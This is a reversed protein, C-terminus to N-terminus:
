TPNSPKEWYRLSEHELSGLKRALIFLLDSLRNLYPLGKFKQDSYTPNSMVLFTVFNREARRCISRSLHALASLVSEGPVIFEKLPSLENNLEEALKTIKSIRIVKFLEINPCSIEGGLNFLDNQIELLTLHIRRSEHTDVKNKKLNARLVGISCSLEDLEGLIQIEPCNKKIRKGDSLSTTGSDGKKTIIKCLRTKM